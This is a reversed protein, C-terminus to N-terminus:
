RKSDKKSSRGTNNGRGSFNGRDRASNMIIDAMSVEKHFLNDVVQQAEEKTKGEDLLEQIKVDECTLVKFFNATAQAAQQRLQKEEEVEDEKEQQNTTNTDGNKKREERKEKLQARLENMKKQQYEEEPTLKPAFTETVQRDAKEKTMGDQKMLDEFMSDEPTVDKFLKAAEKEAEEETMNREKILQQLYIEQPTEIRTMDDFEKSLLTDIEEESTNPYQERMEKRKNVIYIDKPNTPQLKTPDNKELEAVDARLDGLSKAYGKLHEGVIKNYMIEEHYRIWGRFHHTMNILDNASAIRTMFRAIQKTKRLDQLSKNMVSTNLIHRIWNVIRTGASHLARYRIQHWVRWWKQLKIRATSQEYYIILKQHRWRRQVHIVHLNIKQAFSRLSLPRSAYILTYCVFFFRCVFLLLYHLIRFFFLRVFLLLHLINMETVDNFFSVIKKIIKEIRTQRIIKYVQACREWAVPYLGVIRQLQLRGMQHRFITLMIQVKHLKLKEIKQQIIEDVDNNDDLEKQKWEQYEKTGQESATLISIISSAQGYKRRSAYVQQVRSVM